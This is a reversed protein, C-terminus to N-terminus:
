LSPLLLMLEILFCNLIGISFKGWLSIDCSKISACSSALNSSPVHVEFSCTCAGHNSHQFSILAYAEPNLEQSPSIISASRRELLKQIWTCPEKWNTYVKTLDLLLTCKVIYSFSPFVQNSGCKGIHLLPLCCTPMGDFLGM